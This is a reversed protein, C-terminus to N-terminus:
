LADRVTIYRVTYKIFHLNNKREQNWPKTILLVAGSKIELEKAGGGVSSVIHAVIFDLTFIPVM